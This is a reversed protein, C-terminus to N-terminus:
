CHVNEHTSSPIIGTNLAESCINCMPISADDSADYLCPISADDSADYLYPISADDSADYLCPISADDSADYLCPISADDSADYLCPISADDSADYLCPISADDAYRLAGCSVLLQSVMCGYGSQKLRSLLEDIYMDFLIPSLVGGQKVGNSPQEM